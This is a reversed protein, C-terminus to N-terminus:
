VVLQDSMLMAYEDTAEARWKENDRHAAYAGGVSGVACSVGMLGFYSALMDM